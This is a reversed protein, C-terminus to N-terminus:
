TNLDNNKITKYSKYEIAFQIIKYDDLGYEILNANIILELNLEDTEINSLKNEVNNHFFINNTYYNKNSM